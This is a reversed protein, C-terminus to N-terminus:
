KKDKVVIGLEEFVLGQGHFKMAVQQGAGTGNRAKLIRFMRDATQFEPLSMGDYNRVMFEQPDDLREIRIISQPFRNYAAGGALDDMGGIPTKGTGKKPHTVLYVRCGYQRAVRKIKMLFTRDAEWPKANTAAATVPDIGIAAFGSAAKKEVWDALAELTVSDDAAATICEGFSHLADANRRRAADVVAMHKECWDDDTINGNSDLQALARRMHYARDEELENICTKIGAMHWFLFLQLLWFSKSAGGDGCIVTVTGAVSAKSLQAFNPWPMELIRRKGTRVNDFLDDLESMAGIPKAMYLVDEISDAVAEAGLTQIMDFADGKDPLGLGSPDLWLLRPSPELASLIKEVDRMHAIGVREGKANPPDNDPWLIVEKGALPTWDAMGAKGAGMPSTTAAVGIGALAEVAKEGECVIVRPSGAILDRRYLPRPAPPSKMHWRGDPLPSAQRFTKGDSNEIRFVAMEIKSTAPDVYDYRATCNRFTSALADVTPWTQGIADDGQGSTSKPTAIRPQTPPIGGDGRLVDGIPKGANKARLDFVDGAEDCTHCKFRWTGDAGQFIGASAHKDDHYPCRCANGRMVEVGAARLEAVIAGRDKKTQLLEDANM